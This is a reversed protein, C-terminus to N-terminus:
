ESKLNSPVVVYKMGAATAADFGKPADEFVLCKTPDVKMLSAAKLFMEPNPKGNEVDEQTLIVDFIQDIGILELTAIVNSRTGGSCVAIPYGKSKRDKAYDVVEQIPQAKKHLEVFLVEKGDRVKDADLNNNFKENLFRITDDFGMGALSHFLEGTFEFTAGNDEMAKKWSFHHIPMTDALTGDCDFIYGEFEENPIIIDM